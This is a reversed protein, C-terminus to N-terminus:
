KRSSNNKFKFSIWTCRASVKYIHIQPRWVRGQSGKRINESCTAQRIWIDTSIARNNFYATKSIDLSCDEKEWHFKSCECYLVIYLKIYFSNVVAQCVSDNSFLSDLEMCNTYKTQLRMTRGCGREVTSMKAEVHHTVPGCHSNGYCQSTM